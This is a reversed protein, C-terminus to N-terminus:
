HIKCVSHVPYSPEPCLHTNPWQSCSLTPGSHVHYHQAVTFMIFNPWQSCSLTPGSYEHYHQAVTNMIISISVQKEEFAKQLLPMEELRKAREFYDVKKEQSKLKQLLERREKQLEEAERAAIQEADKIDQMVFLLPRETICICFMFVCEPYKTWDALCLVHRGDLGCM